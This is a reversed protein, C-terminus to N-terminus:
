RLMWKSPDPAQPLPPRAVRRNPQLPLGTSPPPPSAPGPPRRHHDGHSTAAPPERLPCRKFCPHTARAAWAFVARLVEACVISSGRAAARAWPKYCRRMASPAEERTSQPHPHEHSEGSTPSIPPNPIPSAVPPVTPPPGRRHSTRRRGQVPSRVLFAAPAPRPDVASSSPLPYRHTDNLHDVPVWVPVRMAGLFRLNCRV